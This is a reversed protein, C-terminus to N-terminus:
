KLCFNKNLNDSDDFSFQTFKDQYNNAFVAVDGDFFDAKFRPDNSVHVLDPQGFVRAANVFQQLDRFGVFHLANKM